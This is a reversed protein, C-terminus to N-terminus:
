SQALDMVRDFRYAAVLETLGAALQSQSDPIEDILRLLIRDSGQAAAYHVQQRWNLSMVGLEAPTLSAAEQVTSLEPAQKEEYLYEVQLHKAVLGLFTERNFPKRIFDDCGLAIMRRRDEEFASATLAIIKPRKGRGRQTFFQQIQRTAEYGDMVPMRMDMLILDLDLKQSMEVAEQGHEAQWVEFGLPTLIQLLLLRNTPRDEAVLIRFQRQGPALAMVRHDKRSVTTDAVHGQTVVQVPVDCIFRTGQGVLSEVCLNGEMLQVFRKSIFLGLGSGKANKGTRTQAFPRFLEKLEDPAIGPGTDEVEFHLVQRDSVALLNSEEAALVRVDSESGDSESGDSERVDVRLVVRGQETFKIANGMLNLLTQHLKGEDAQIYQPLMPATEVSLDLDKVHAQLALTEELRHLLKHLDFAVTHIAVRGAEIKSVELVDNILGLLDEGSRNIINLYEQQQPPLPPQSDDSAMLQSFGLISSLPTRLEHSMNALFRSKAQNAAEAAEKAEQLARNALKRESVDVGIAWTSWGRIPHRDSINSWAITKVSGDKCTIDWEWNRFDNGRSQWMQMMNTRYNPNPYLWEMARPNGLIESAQYGTVRECEANWIRLEGEKDFANLMVPMNELVTRLRIDDKPPPEPSRSDPSRLAPLKAPADSIKPRGRSASRYGAAPTPEFSADVITEGGDSEPTTHSVQRQLTLLKHRLSHNDAELLRLASLRRILVKQRRFLWTTTTAFGAALISLIAWAAIALLGFGSVGMDWNGWSLIRRTVDVSDM